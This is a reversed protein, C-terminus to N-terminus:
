KKNFYNWLGTQKWGIRELYGDHERGLKQGYYKQEIMRADNGGVPHGHGLAEHMFVIGYNKSNIDQENRSIWINASMYQPDIKGGGLGGVGIFAGEGNNMRSLLGNDGKYNDAFIVNFSVDASHIADFLASTVDNQGWDFESEIDTALSYSTVDGDENKNEIVSINAGEFIKNLRDALQQLRDQDNSNVERGDPDVNKLPNNLTYNYPNWGPFKDAMPDISLWRAPQEKGLDKINVDSINHGITNQEVVYPVFKPYPNEKMQKEQSFIFSYSLIVIGLLQIFYKM